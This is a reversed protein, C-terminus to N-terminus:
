SEITLAKKKKEGGRREESSFVNSISNTSPPPRLSEVFEKENVEMVAFFFFSRVFEIKVFIGQISEFGERRKKGVFIRSRGEGGGEKRADVKFILGVFYDADEVSKRFVM